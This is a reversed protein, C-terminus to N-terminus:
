GDGFDADGLIESGRRLILSDAGDGLYLAQAEFASITGSNVVTQAGTNGADTLIGFAGSITGSNLIDVDGDGEDIDVGAEGSATTEILGDISSSGQTSTSAM